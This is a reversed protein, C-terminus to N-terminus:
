PNRQLGANKVRASVCFRMPPPRVASGRHLDARIQGLVRAELRVATPYRGAPGAATAPGETLLRRM